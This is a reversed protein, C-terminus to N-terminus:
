PRPWVGFLRLRGSRVNCTYSYATLGGLAGVAAAAEVPLGYRLGGVFRVMLVWQIPRLEQAREKGWPLRRVVRMAWAGVMAAVIVVLKGWWPVLVFAAIMAVAIVVALTSAVVQDTRSMPPPSTNSL